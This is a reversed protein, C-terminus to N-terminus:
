SRMGAMLNPRNFNLDPQNLNGDTMNTGFTSRNQDNGGFNPTIQGQASSTSRQMQMSHGAGQSHGFVQRGMGWQTNLNSGSQSRM